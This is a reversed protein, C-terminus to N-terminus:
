EALVKPTQVYVVVTVEVITMTIPSKLDQEVDVNMDVLNIVM